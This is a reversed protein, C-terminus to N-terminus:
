PAVGKLYFVWETNNSGGASRACTVILQGTIPSKMKKDGDFSIFIKYDKRSRLSDSYKTLSFLSNDVQFLFQTPTRFINRFVIHTQTGAKIVIPGQPKPPLCTGFLPFNFEGGLTSSFSLTARQESIESPEFTVDINIETGSGSVTVSKQVSFESNDIQLAFFKIFLFYM